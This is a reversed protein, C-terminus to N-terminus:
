IVISAPYFLTLGTRKRAYEVYGSGDESVTHLWFNWGTIKMRLLKTAKEWEAKQAPTLTRWEAAATHFLQRVRAQYRTAPNLAPARPYVVPRNRQSTYCTFPGVDGTIRFGLLGWIPHYNKAVDHRDGTNNEKFFFPASSEGSGRWTM